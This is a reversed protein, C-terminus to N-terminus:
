TLIELNQQVFEEFERFLDKTAEIAKHSIIPDKRMGCHAFDNRLDRCRWWLKTSVLSPTLPAIEKSLQSDQHKVRENLIEEADSRSEQNLWDEQNLQLCEWSVLWERMLTIAQLYHQNEVYWRIQGYQAKLGKKPNERPQYVALDQYSGKLKETVMQFPVPQRLLSQPHNMDLHLFGSVAEQAELTRNTLLAASVNTLARKISNPLNLTAIERADGSSQFIAFANMWDLLEVFPTLDFIPTYNTDADRAEFAGYIIHKLTVNKVQRIYAAVIFVLLPLSRFAHTIDLIVEDGDGVADACIQFIAWLESESNGNPINETILRSDLRDHLHKLYGREDKQVQPTVFVIIQEPNYLKAVAEPFLHTECSESGDHKIYTTPQYGDQPGIGLFTLARLM